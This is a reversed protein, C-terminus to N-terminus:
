SSLRPALHQLHPALVVQAGTAQLQKASTVVADEFAQVSSFGRSKADSELQTLFAGTAQAQPAGLAVAHVPVPVPAPAPSFAVTFPSAATASPVAVAQIPLTLPPSESPGPGLAPLAKKRPWFYWTIAAGIGIVAVMTFWRRKKPPKPTLQGEGYYGRGYGFNM